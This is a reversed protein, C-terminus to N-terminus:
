RCPTRHSWLDCTRRARYPPGGQPRPSLPLPGPVPCSGPPNLPLASCGRPSSHRRALSPPCATIARRSWRRAPPLPRELLAAPWHPVCIGPRAGSARPYPTSLRIGKLRPPHIFDRPQFRKPSVASRLTPPTEFTKPKLNGSLLPRHQASSLFHPHRSPPM